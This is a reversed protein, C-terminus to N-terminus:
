PSLDIYSIQSVSLMKHSSAQHLQGHSSAAAKGQSAIYPSAPNAEPQLHFAASRGENSSASSAPVIVKKSAGAKFRDLKLLTVYRASQIFKSAIPKAPAAAAHVSNQGKSAHHMLPLADVFFLRQEAYAHNQGSMTKKINPSKKLRLSCLLLGCIGAMLVFPICVDYKSIRAVLWSIICIRIVLQIILYFYVATKYSLIHLAFCRCYM